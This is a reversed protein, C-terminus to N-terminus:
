EYTYIIKFCFFVFFFFILINWLLLEAAYFGRRIPLAVLWHLLCSSLIIHRSRGNWQKRGITKKRKKYIVIKDVSDVSNDDIYSLIICYVICYYLYLSYLSYFIKKIVTDKISYFVYWLQIQIYRKNTAFTTRFIIKVEVVDTTETIENKKKLKQM